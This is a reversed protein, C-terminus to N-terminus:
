TERPGSGFNVSGTFWGIVYINGASDVNVDLAVEDSAGGLPKSIEPSPAIEGICTRVRDQECQM